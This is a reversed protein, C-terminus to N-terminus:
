KLTGGLFKKTVIFTVLVSFLCTMFAFVVSKIGIYQIQSVMKKNSGISAGMSFLLLVIGFRQFWMNYKMFREPIKNSFGLAVGIGLFLFFLWM